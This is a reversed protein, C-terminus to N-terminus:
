IGPSIKHHSKAARNTSIQRARGVGPPELMVEKLRDGSAIVVVFNLKGDQKMLAEPLLAERPLKRPSAYPM